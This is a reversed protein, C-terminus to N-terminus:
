DLRVVLVGVNYPDLSHILGRKTLFDELAPRIKAGGADSHLGKGVIFRVAQDGRSRATQLQYESVQIAEAVHLGHLDIMGGGRNKNNERFVIKAARKNLEKMESERALADQRHAHAAGLRGKQTASKARSRAESMERGKRQAQERLKKAFELDEIGVPEDTCPSSSVVVVLATPPPPKSGTPVRPPAHSSTPFYECEPPEHVHDTDFLSSSLHPAHIRTSSPQTQSPTRSYSLAVSPQYAGRGYDNPTPTLPVNQHANSSPHPSQRPTRTYPSVVSPRHVSCDYDPITPTGATTQNYANTAPTQYTYPPPLRYSKQTQTRTTSGIYSSSSYYPDRRLNNDKGSYIYKVIAYVAVAGICALAAALTPALDPHRPPPPPEKGDFFYKAIARAPALYCSHPPPPPDERGFVYKGIAHVVAALTSTLYSDRPPPDNGVARAAAALTSALYSDCPLPPPPDTGGFTYTGIAYAAAALTLTLKPRLM